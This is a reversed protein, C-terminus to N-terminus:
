LIISPQVPHVATRGQLNNMLENLTKKLGESKAKLKKEENELRKDEDRLSQVKAGAKANLEKKIAARRASIERLRLHILELTNRYISVAQHLQGNKSYAEGLASYTDIYYYLDGKKNAAKELEEIARVQEKEEPDVAGRSTYPRAACGAWLMIALALCLTRM